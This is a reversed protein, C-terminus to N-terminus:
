NAATQGIGLTSGGGINMTSGPGGTAADYLTTSIGQVNASGGYMNFSLQTQIGVFTQLGLAMGTGQGDKFVNQYLDADLDQTQIGLGTCEAQLSTVDAAQGVTFLDGLGVAAASQILSGATGQYSANHTIGDTALQSNNVTTSNNNVASGDGLLGASNIGTLNYGQLMVDSAFAVSSMLIMAVVLSTKMM